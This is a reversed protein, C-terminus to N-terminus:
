RGFLGRLGQEFLGRIAEERQKDPDPPPPQSPTPQPTQRQPVQAQRRRLERQRLIEIIGATLNAQVDLDGLTGAIAVPIPVGQLESFRNGAQGVCGEILAATARYDLRQTVLDFQGRGEVNLLPSQLVLDDNYAIGNRITMRGALASFETRNGTNGTSPPPVMIGLVGPIIDERKLSGASATGLTRCLRDLIDAGEITGDALAFNADGNLSRTIAEANAGAATVTMSVDARGTVPRQGQLDRLLPGAQVKTLREDLSLRPQRGRADLVLHGSYSGGYLDANLPHVTV